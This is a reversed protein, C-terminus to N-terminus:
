ILFSSKASEAKSAESYKRLGYSLVKSFNWYFDVYFKKVKKQYLGGIFVDEAAVLSAVERFVFSAHLRAGDIRRLLILLFLHIKTNLIEFRKHLSNCANERAFCNKRFCHM